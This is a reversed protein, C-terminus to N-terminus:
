TLYQFFAFFAEFFLFLKFPWIKFDCRGIKLGLTHTLLSDISKYFRVFFHTFYAHITYLHFPIYQCTSRLFFITSPAITLLSVFVIFYIFYMWIIGRHVWKTAGKMRKEVVGCTQYDTSSNRLYFLWEKKNRMKDCKKFNRDKKARFTETFSTIVLFLRARISMTAHTNDVVLLDSFTRRDPTLLQQVTYM